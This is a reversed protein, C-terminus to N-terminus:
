PRDEDLEVIIKLIMNWAHRLFPVGEFACPIERVGDVPHTELDNHMRQPFRLLIIREGGARPCGAGWFAYQEELALVYQLRQLREVVTTQHQSHVRGSSTM